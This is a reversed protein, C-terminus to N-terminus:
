RLRRQWQLSQNTFLLVGFLQKTPASRTGTSPEDSALASAM